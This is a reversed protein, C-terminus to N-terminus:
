AMKESLKAGGIVHYHMHKVTQCANDGCNNVIRYGGETLGLLEAVKACTRLCAALEQDSLDANYALDPTRKKSVVLVHTKAQPAIDHFAFTFEDEYVKKSPIQGAIIKCFLCDNMTRGGEDISVNEGAMGEETLSTLRV